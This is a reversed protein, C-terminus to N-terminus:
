FYFWLLWNILLLILQLLIIGININLINIMSELKEILIILGRLISGVNVVNGKISSKHIHGNFVLKYKSLQNSTVGTEMEYDGRIKMGMIDLHSFLFDGDPFETIDRSEMYPMFALSIQENSNNDCLLTSTGTKTPETIVTINNINSLIKIANFDANIM